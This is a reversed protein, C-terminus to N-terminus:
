SDRGKKGAAFRWTAVATELVPRREAYSGAPSRLELLFLTSGDSAAYLDLVHEGGDPGRSRGAFRLASCGDLTTTEVQPPEVAAFGEGFQLREAALERLWAEVRESFGDCSMGRGAERRELVLAPVAGERVRRLSASDEGAGSGVPEAAFIITGWLTRDGVTVTSQVHPGWDDPIALAFQDDVHDYTKHGQPVRYQAARLAKM